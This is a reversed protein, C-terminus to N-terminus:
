HRHWLDHLSALRAHRTDKPFVPHRQVACLLKAAPPRLGEICLLCTPRPLHRLAAARVGLGEGMRECVLAVSATSVPCTSLTGCKTLYDHSGISSFCIPGPSGPGM